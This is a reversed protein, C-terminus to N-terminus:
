VEHMPTSAVSDVEMKVDTTTKLTHSAFRALQQRKRERLTTLMDIVEDQENILLEGGPLNAAMEKAQALANKFETTAQLVAQKSQLTSVGEPRQSLELVTVLKLLLGEYLETPLSM